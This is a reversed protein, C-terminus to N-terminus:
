CWFKRRGFASLWGQWQKRITEISSCNDTKCPRKMLVPNLLETMECGDFLKLKLIIFEVKAATLISLNSYCSFLIEMFQTLSPQRWVVLGLSDSNKRPRLRRLFQTSSFGPWWPGFEQSKIPHSNALCSLSYRSYPADVIFHAEQFLVHLNKFISLM